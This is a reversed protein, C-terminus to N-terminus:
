SYLNEKKKSAKLSIPPLWNMIKFGKSGVSTDGFGCFFHLYHGLDGLGLGVM